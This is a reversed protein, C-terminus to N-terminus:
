EERGMTGIIDMPKKPPPTKISRTGRLTRDGQKYIFFSITTEAMDPNLPLQNMNLLLDRLGRENDRTLRNFGVTSKNLAGWNVPEPTLIAKIRELGEPGHIWIPTGWYDDPIKIVQGARIFNSKTMRENPLLMWLNGSTGVNFLYLFGPRESRVFINVKDCAEPACIEYEEKDTWMKFDFQPNEQKLSLLWEMTLKYNNPRQPDPIVKNEKLVELYEPPIEESKIEVVGEGMSLSKSDILSANIRVSKKRKIEKYFGSIEIGLSESPIVKEQDLSIDRSRAKIALTKDVVVSVDSITMLHRRLDMEVLESFPMRKKSIHERFDVKEVKLHQNKVLRRILQQALYLIGDEWGKPKQDPILREIRKELELPSLIESHLPYPSFDNKVFQYTEILSNLTKREAAAKLFREAAKLHSANEELLRDGDIQLELISSQIQEIQGTLKQIVPERELVSLSYYTNNTNDTWRKKIIVGDLQLNVDTRVGSATDSHVLVVPKDGRKDITRSSVHVNIGKLKVSFQSAMEHRAQDDSAQYNNGAGVATVYLPEPFLSSPDKIWEPQPSAPHSTSKDM